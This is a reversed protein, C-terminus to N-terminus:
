TWRQLLYLSNTTYNIKLSKVFMAKMGVKFLPKIQSNMKDNVDRM